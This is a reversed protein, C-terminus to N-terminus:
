SAECTKKFIGRISHSHQLKQAFSWKARGFHEAANKLRASSALPGSIACRHALAADRLVHGSSALKLLLAVTEGAKLLDPSRMMDSALLEDAAADTCLVDISDTM